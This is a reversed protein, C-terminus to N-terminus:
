ENEMAPEVRCVLPYELSRALDIVQSCKTEAADRSYTGCVAQGKTHVDLMVRMARDKGMTFVNVLVQVVFEMPTYDDNIMLVLYRKPRKLAPDREAVEIDRDLGRDPQSPTKAPGNGGATYIFGRHRNM